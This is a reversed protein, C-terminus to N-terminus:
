MCDNSGLSTEKMYRATDSSQLVSTHSISSILFDYLQLYNEAMLILLKYQWM